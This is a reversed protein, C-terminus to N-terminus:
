KCDIELIVPLHRFGPNKHLARCEGDKRRKGQKQRKKQTAAAAKGGRTM